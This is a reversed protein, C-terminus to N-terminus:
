RPLLDACFSVLANTFVEPAEWPLFHGADRIRYPGVHDPFVIQAMREFDAPIVHDSPGFLILTRVDPNRGLMAPATRAGEDFTSEYAGFSARLKAADDFPEVHFLIAEDDFAGPHGWLRSSYFTSVYRRRARVTALDELLEDGRLAQDMFYDTTGVPLTRLGDMQGKLYPLPCNFLVLRDVRDPFRAALDQVIVGGFDGGVLVVREVDVSDLLEGLDLSSAVTDHLGDAGVASEGFGRLDPAIVDFGAAALPGIVRWWIRKTEPWGHVLLLPVGGTGERVFALEGGRIATRQSSFRSPDLDAQM